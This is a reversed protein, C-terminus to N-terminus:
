PTKKKEELLNIEMLFGEPGRLSLIYGFALYAGAMTWASKKDFNATRNINLECTDRLKKWLKTSVGVNSRVDVGM